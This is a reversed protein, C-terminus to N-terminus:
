PLEQDDRTQATVSPVRGDPGPEVSGYRPLDALFRAAEARISEREEISLRKLGLVAPGLRPNARL